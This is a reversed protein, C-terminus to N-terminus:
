LQLFLDKWLNRDRFLIITEDEDDELRTGMRGIDDRIVLAISQIVDVEILRMMSELTYREAISSKMHFKRNEIRARYNFNDGTVTKVLAYSKGVELFASDHPVRVGDVVNYNEITGSAITFFMLVQAPLPEDYDDWKVMVWDNWARESNYLPHARATSGDPLRCETYCQLTGNDMDLRGGNRSYWIRKAASRYIVPEYKYGDISSYRKNTWQFHLHQQDDPNIWLSCLKSFLPSDVANAATPFGAVDDNTEVPIYQYDKTDIYTSMNGNVLLREAELVCSAEFYRLATQKGLSIQRRQTRTTHDKCFYKGYYEPRGGDFNLASGHRSINHPFHLLQHFKTLKWGMGHTRPFYLKIGQMLDRIKQLSISENGDQDPDITEKAHEKAFLWDHFCLMRELVKVKQRLDVLMVDGHIGAKPNNYLYRVYSSSMLLCYIAFIKGIREVAKLKHVKDLGSRFPSVTPFKLLPPFRTTQIMYSMVNDTHVQSATSLTTTYLEGVEKCSGMNFAHHNEPMTAGYVGQASAGLDTDELCPSLVCHFSRQRLEEEDYEQMEAKTYFHCVHYPDDGQVTPVDCDRVLGPTNTHSSFRGCLKDHGECDGIIFQVPFFLVVDKKEEGDFSFTWNIGTSQVESLARFVTGLVEHYENLAMAPSVKGKLNGKYDIYALPRWAQPQNRVDRKFASFTILIPEQSLNTFEGHSVGDIFLILPWLVSSDAIDPYDEKMKLVTDTWWQGTNVDDYVDNNALAPDLQSFDDTGFVLNDRTMLNENCLLDIMVTRVDFMTVEAVRGTCLNVRLQKPQCKKLYEKGYVATAIQRILPKRTPVHPHVLSHTVAWQLVDDFTNLSAGRGVTKLYLDMLMQVEPSLHFTDIQRRRIKNALMKLCDRGVTVDNVDDDEVASQEDSDEMEEIHEAEEAISGVSLSDSSNYQSDVSFDVDQGYQYEDDPKDYNQASPCSSCMAESPRSTSAYGVPAFYKTSPQTKTYHHPFAYTAYSNTVVNGQIPFDANDSTNLKMRKNKGSSSYFTVNSLIAEKKGGKGGQDELAISPDMIGMNYTDNCGKKLSMHKLLSSDDPFKMLCSQCTKIAEKCIASSEMHTMLAELNTSKICTGCQPCRRAKVSKSM